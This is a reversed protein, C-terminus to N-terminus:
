NKGNQRQFLIQDPEAPMTLGLSFDEQRWFIASNLQMNKLDEFLVSALFSCRRRRIFVMAPWSILQKVLTAWGEEPEAVGSTQRPPEM